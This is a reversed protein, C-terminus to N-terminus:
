IDVGVLMFPSEEFEDKFNLGSEECTYHELLLKVVNKLNEDKCAEYLKGKWRRLLVKEALVKWTQSVDRCQLLTRTNLNECIHEAVHPIGPNIIKNIDGNLNETESLREEGCNIVEIANGQNKCNPNM